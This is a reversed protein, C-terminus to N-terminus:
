KNTRVKGELGFQAEYQFVALSNASIRQSSKIRMGKKRPVLGLPSRAKASTKGSRLTIGALPSAHLLNMIAIVVRIVEARVRVVMIRGMQVNIQQRAGLPPTITPPHEFLNHFCKTGPAGRACM